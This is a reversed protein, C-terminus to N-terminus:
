LQDQIHSMQVTENKRQRSIQLAERREQKFRKKMEKQAKYTVSHEEHMKEDAMFTSISYEVLLATMMIISSVKEEYLFLPAPILILYVLSVLALRSSQSYTNLLRHSGHAIWGLFFCLFILVLQLLM